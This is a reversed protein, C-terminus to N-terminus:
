QARSLGRMQAEDARSSAWFALGRPENFDLGAAKMQNSEHYVRAHWQRGILQYDQQWRVGSAFSSRVVVGEEQLKVCLALFEDPSVRIQYHSTSDLPIEGEAVQQRGLSQNVATFDCPRGVCGNPVEQWQATPSDPEFPRSVRRYAFCEDNVREYRAWILSRERSDGIEVNVYVCQIDVRQGVPNTCKEALVPRGTAPNVWACENRGNLREFSRQMGNLDTRGLRTGRVVMIRDMQYVGDMDCNLALTRLKEALNELTWGGHPDKAQFSELYNIPAACSGDELCKAANIMTKGTSDGALSRDILDALERPHNLGYYYGTFRVRAAAPAAAVTTVSATASAETTTAHAGTALGITLLATSAILTKRM